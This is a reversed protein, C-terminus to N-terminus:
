RAASQGDAGGAAPRVELARRTDGDRALDLATRGERDRAQPDAGRALLFTAMEAHGRGAAIMLATMGRDDRADLPAGAELLLEATAIGDKAPVDNGHGAGWMLATLDHGYRRAPDVGAELLRAVIASFGRAAAYVIPSKGTVDVPDPDAGADLLADVLRRDGAFAAAALPALGQADRRDPDAGAALLRRVVDRRRAEVALRLPTRGRLDPRDVEAGRALLLEVLDAHGAEAAVHLPTNGIGNRAAPSAGADLLEAALDTCGKRAAEFLAFDRQRRDELVQPRLQTRALDTCIQAHAGPREGAAAPIALFALLLAAVPAPRASADRKRRDVGDERGTRFITYPLLGGAPLPPRPIAFRWPPARAPAGAPIM